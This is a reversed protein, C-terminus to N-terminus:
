GGDVVGRLVEVVESMTTSVSGDGWREPSGM